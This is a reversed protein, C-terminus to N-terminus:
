RRLGCVAPGDLVSGDTDFRSGHLPCDWSDEADNWAVIGGLHTCVRSVGQERVSRNVLATGWGRVMELGVEGNHRLFTPLGALDRPGWVQFARAWPTHGGLLRSSLALSAGVANTMGWKSYGGAVLVAESGPLVPGAYPLAHHPVYDQASWAHTEVAEPFHQATWHRLQDLREAEHRVRGTTHGAGGVLLAPAGDVVVDRLSRSPEDASLYMADVSPVPTRFAVSYSRAPEMRAFFAGRDLIPMNTAVVVHDATVRGVETTVTVPSSGRVSTVRAGEVVVAGHAEAQERLALLLEIPDVQLQDRLRVGGRTPYPLPLEADWEVALGAASAVELERRVAREGSADTAYTVADRRQLEVGHEDGFRALWAVAERQAEVYDKVVDPGHKGAVSSLRTGQLASIKATSRGTTGAGVHAAELVVVSRGARALLLATTLGTLGAGVVAVDHHGSPEGREASRRHRDQWLSTRTM